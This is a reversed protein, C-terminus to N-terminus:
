SSLQEVTVDLRYVMAGPTNSAYAIAYTLDAFADARVVVSGSQRADVADVALAAGVETFPLGSETWGITIQVSSSVGDATTKRLYWSVRYLAPTVTTFVATTAIAANQAQLAAAALTPTRVSRDILEQWRRRFFETIVGDRTVIPTELPIPALLEAM